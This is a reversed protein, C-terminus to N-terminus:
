RKRFVTLLMFALYSFKTLYAVTYQCMTIYLSQIHRLLVHLLMFAILFVNHSFFNLAIHASHNKRSFLVYWNCLVNMYTHIFSFQYFTLYLPLYTSPYILQDILPCIPSHYIVFVVLINVLIDVIKTLESHYILPHM